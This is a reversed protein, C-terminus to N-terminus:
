CSAFNKLTTKTKNLGFQIYLSTRAFLEYVIVKEEFGSILGLFSKQLKQIALPQSIILLSAFVPVFYELISEVNM